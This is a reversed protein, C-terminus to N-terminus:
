LIGRRWGFDRTQGLIIAEEFTNGVVPRHVDLDKEEIDMDDEDGVDRHNFNTGVCADKASLTHILQKWYGRDTALYEGNGVM